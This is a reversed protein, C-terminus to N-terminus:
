PNPFECQKDNRSLWILSMTPCGIHRFSSGVQPQANNTELTHKSQYAAKSLSVMILEVCVCVCVRTTEQQYPPQIRMASFTWYRLCPLQFLLVWTELTSQWNFHKKSNKSPLASGFCIFSVRTEQTKELLQLPQLVLTSDHLYPHPDPNSRNEETSLVSFLCLCLFLSAWAPRSLDPFLPWFPPFPIIMGPATELDNLVFVFSNHSLQHTHIYTPPLLGPSPTRWRRPYFIM